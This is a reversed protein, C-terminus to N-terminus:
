QAVESLKDGLDHNGPVFNLRPKLPALIKHAEKVAPFSNMNQLPHM